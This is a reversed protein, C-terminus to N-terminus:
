TPKRELTSKANSTLSRGNAMQQLPSSLSIQSHKMKVPDRWLACKFATSLSINLLTRRPSRNMNNLLCHMYKDIRRRSSLNRGPTRAKIHAELVKDGWVPRPGTIPNGVCTAHRALLLATTVHRFATNGQVTNANRHQISSNQIHRNQTNPTNESLM